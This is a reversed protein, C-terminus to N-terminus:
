LNFFVLEQDGTPLPSATARWRSGLCQHDAQRWALIRRSGYMGDPCVERDVLGPDHLSGRQSVTEQARCAVTDAGAEEWTKPLFALYRKRRM